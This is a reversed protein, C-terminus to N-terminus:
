PSAKGRGGGLVVLKFQNNELKMINQPQKQTGQCIFLLFLKINNEQSLKEIFSRQEITPKALGIEDM